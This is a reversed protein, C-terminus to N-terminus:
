HIVPFLILISPSSLNCSPHEISPDFSLTLNPRFTESGPAWCVSVARLHYYHCTTRTLHNWCVQEPSSALTLSDCIPFTLDPSSTEYCPDPTKHRTSRVCHLKAWIVSWPPSFDSPGSFFSSSDYSRPDTISWDGSLASLALIVPEFSCAQTSTQGFEHRYLYTWTHSFLARALFARVLPTRAMTSSM